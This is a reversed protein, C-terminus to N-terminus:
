RAMGWINITISPVEPHDTKLIIYGKLRGPEKPTHFIQLKYDINPKLTEGPKISTKIGEPKTKIEMIKIPKETRNRITIQSSSEEGVTMNRLSMIKPYYSIPRVVFAKLMINARQPSTNAYVGISKTVEDTYNSVNFTIDLTASEGPALTDKDLPATTCGCTPKVNHIILTQDGVNKLIKKAKLPSDDPQVKGFDHTNGGIVELKPQAALQSFGLLLLILPLVLRKM